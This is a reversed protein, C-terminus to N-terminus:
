EKMSYVTCYHVRQTKTPIEDRGFCVVHAQTLIKNRGIHVLHAKRLQYTFGEPIVLVKLQFTFRKPRVM